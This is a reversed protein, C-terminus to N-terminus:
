APMSSRRCTRHDGAHQVHRHLRGHDHGPHLEQRAHRAPLEGAGHRELRAAGNVQLSDSTTPGVRLALIGTSTQAYVGSTTHAVGSGAASIGMWGSNQFRTFPGGAVAVQGDIIGSNVITPGVATAGTALAFAGSTASLLGTNIFSGFTGNLQM